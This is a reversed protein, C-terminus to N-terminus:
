NFDRSTNAVWRSVSSVWGMLSRHAAGLPIDYFWQPDYQKPMRARILKRDAAAHVAVDYRESNYVLFNLQSPIRESPVHAQQPIRSTPVIVRSCPEPTAPIIDSDYDLYLPEPSAIVVDPGNDLSFGGVHVEADNLKKRVSSTMTGNLGAAAHRAWSTLSGCHTLLHLLTFMGVSEM